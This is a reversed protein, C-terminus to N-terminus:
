RRRVVMAHQLDQVRVKMRDLEDRQQDNASNKMVTLENYSDELRMLAETNGETNYHEQKASEEYQQQAYELTNECRGLCEDMSKHTAM